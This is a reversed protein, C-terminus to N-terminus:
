RGASRQRLQKLIEELRGMEEGYGTWDGARQREVARRYHALAEEALKNTSAEAPRTGRPPTPALAKATVEAPVRVASPRGELLGAMAEKLTSGLSVEAANGVQRGVIVLTLEPVPSEEARLYIPEVYLLAHDLPLVLLNGRQMQSGRQGWLTELESFKEDQNILGELQMPGWVQEQEPFTYVVLKGYHPVDCRGAMWAIMNRRGVPTFPVMLVFEAREQGPLNLVVYYAEMPAGTGPMGQATIAGKGAAERAVAWQDQRNFFVRPNAM